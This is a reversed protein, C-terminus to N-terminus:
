KGAEGGGGALATLLDMAQDFIEGLWGEDPLDIQGAGRVDDPLVRSRLLPFTEATRLLEAPDARLHAAARRLDALTGLTEDSNARGSTAPDGPPRTAPRVKELWLGGIDNAAARLQARLQPGSRGLETHAPSHGTLSVRVALLRNEAQQGALEMAERALGCVEDLDAASSVDLELHSWRAVDLDHHVASAVRGDEVTVLTCGKPGTEKAHRGQTNGPYVIWPDESVVCRQHVHGLAWYDYGKAALQEVSCPAYPQHGEAYGSTLATHLLGVNFYDPVAAPYSAALNDTLDHRSFGQGHVALGLDDDCITEPRDTALCHVNGPLPLSSTMRNEADHNGSVLYVPIGADRLRGMQNAFFLGTSFDPWKGDYSDGALLVADVQESLALLVLNECARRTAQRMEAAPAGEYASLGRLPSDIHLDAAHLLKM